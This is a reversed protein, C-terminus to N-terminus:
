AENMQYLYRLRVKMAPESVDFRDALEHVGAFGRAIAVNMLRRPMLLEAALNNAQFEEQTTLNPSRYMADDSLGDGIKDRHLLFHACEHAVTFRRRKYPEAANVAIVYGSPSDSKDGRSIRGSIGLPLDYSDYVSLGLAIALATVDVPLVQQHAQIIDREQPTM